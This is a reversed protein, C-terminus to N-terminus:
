KLSFVAPLYDIIDSAILSIETKGKAALDGALGHVYVGYKAAEFCSLGQALFATIIGTLVDGSGATAMGPNGCSNEYVNDGSVVLSNQGKLAVVVNYERSFDKVLNIIEERTVEALSRQILRSFEGLHPTLILKAKAKSLITVGAQAVANLGDADLVISQELKFLLDKVLFVTDPTLRMGPGLALANVKRALCYEQIKIGATKSLVGQTCALECIIVETLKIACIDAIEEPVGLSVVGCGSRLCGMAALCVSGSMGKSGGVILAHGFNYKHSNLNRKRLLVPM